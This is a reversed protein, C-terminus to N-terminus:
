VVVLLQLHAIQLSMRTEVTGPTLLCHNFQSNCVDLLDYAVHFFFPLDDVHILGGGVHPRDPVLDPLRLVRHQRQDDLSGLLLLAVHGDDSGDALLHFNDKMMDGVGGVFLSDFVEVLFKMPLEFKFLFNNHHVIVSSMTGIYNPVEKILILGNNLEQRRARGVEVWNFRYPGPHLALPLIRKQLRFVQIFAM